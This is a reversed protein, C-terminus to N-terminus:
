VVKNFFKYKCSVIEEAFATINVDISKTKLVKKQIM